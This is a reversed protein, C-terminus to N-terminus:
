KPKKKKCYWEPLLGFNQKRLKQREARIASIADALMKANQEIYKTDIRVVEVDRGLEERIKIDRKTDRKVSNQHFIGDIELVIKMEPIWFDVRYGAVKHQTKIHIEDNILVAAAVMEHASDFLDLNNESFEKVAELAEKYLYLKIDQRELMRVAREYMLKKKLRVYEFRDTERERMVRAFCEECYFRQSAPVYDFVEGLFYEPKRM